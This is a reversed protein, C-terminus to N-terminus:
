DLFEEIEIKSANNEEFKIVLTYFKWGMGHGENGLYFRWTNITDQDSEQSSNPSGLIEYIEAKSKGILIDNELLDTRMEHRNEIEENWSQQNFNRKPHYEHFLLSFIIVVLWNYIVPFLLIGAIITFSIEPLNKWKKRLILYFTLLICGAVLIMLPWGAYFTSFSNLFHDKM